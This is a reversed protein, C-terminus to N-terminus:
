KTPAAARILIDHSSEASGRVAKFGVVECKSKGQEIGPEIMGALSESVWTKQADHGVKNAVLNEILPLNYVTGSLGSAPLSNNHAGFAVPLRAIFNHLSLAPHDPFTGFTPLQQWKLFADRTPEQLFTPAFDLHLHDRAAATASISLGSVQFSSRRLPAYAPAPAAAYESADVGTTAAWRRSSWRLRAVQFGRTTRLTSELHIDRQLVNRMCLPPHIYQSPRIFLSDRLEDDPHYTEMSSSFNQKTWCALRPSHLGQKM